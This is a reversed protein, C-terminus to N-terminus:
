VMVNRRYESMEAVVKAAMSYEDSDAYTNTFQNDDKERTSGNTTTTTTFTM